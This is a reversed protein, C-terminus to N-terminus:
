ERKKKFLEICVWKIFLYFLFSSSSTCINGTEMLVIFVPIKLGFSFFVKKKHSYVVSSTISLQCGAESLAIGSTRLSCDPQSVSNLDSLNEKMAALSLCLM